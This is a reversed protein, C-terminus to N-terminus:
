YMKSKPTKKLVCITKKLLNQIKSNKKICFYNKKINTKKFINRLVKFIVSTYLMTHYLQKVYLFITNPSPKMKSIAMSKTWSNKMFEHFIWSFNMFFLRPYRSFPAFWWCLNKKINFLETMGYEVGIKMRMPLPGRPNSHVVRWPNEHFFIRFAPQDLYRGM